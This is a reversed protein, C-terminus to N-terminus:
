EKAKPLPPLPDDISVLELTPAVPDFIKRLVEALEDRNEALVVSRAGDIAIADWDAAAVDDSPHFWRVYGYLKAFAHLEEADTTAPALETTAGASPATAEHRKACGALVCAFAIM